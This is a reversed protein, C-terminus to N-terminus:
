KDHVVYNFYSKIEMAKKPISEMQILKGDETFMLLKEKGHTKQLKAIMSRVKDGVDTTPGKESAGQSYFQVCM